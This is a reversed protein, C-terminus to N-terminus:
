QCKCWPARKSDWLQVTWYLDNLFLCLDPSKYESFRFTFSQQPKGARYITVRHREQPDLDAVRLSQDKPWSLIDRHDLRFALEGSGCLGPACRQPREAANPAVCMSGVPSQGCLNLCWVTIALTATAWKMWNMISSSELRKPDTAPEPHNTPLGSSVRASRWIKAM